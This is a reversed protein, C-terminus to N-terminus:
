RFKFTSCKPEWFFFVFRLFCLIRIDLLSFWIESIILLLLSNREIRNTNSIVAENKMKKKWMEKADQETATPVCWWGVASHAFSHVLWGDSGVSGSFLWVLVSTCTEAHRVCIPYVHGVCFNHISTSLLLLRRTSCKRVLNSM